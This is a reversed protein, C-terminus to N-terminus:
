FILRKPFIRGIAGAQGAQEGCPLRKPSIDPTADSM